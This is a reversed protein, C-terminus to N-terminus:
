SRLSASGTGATSSTLDWSVSDATGTTAAGAAAGRSVFATSAFGSASGTVLGSSGLVSALVSVGATPLPLEAVPLPVVAVPFPALAVSVLVVVGALPLLEVALPSFFFFCLRSLEIKLLILCLSESLYILSHPLKALTAVNHPWDRRM